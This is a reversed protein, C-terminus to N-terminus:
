EFLLNDSKFRNWSVLPVGRPCKSYDILGAGNVRIDTVCDGDFSVFRVIPRRDFTSAALWQSYALRDVTVSPSEANAPASAPQQSVTFCCTGSNRRDSFPRRPTQLPTHPVLTITRGQTVHEDMLTPQIYAILLLGLTWAHMEIETIRRAPKSGPGLSVGSSSRCAEPRGHRTIKWAM